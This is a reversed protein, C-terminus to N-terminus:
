ITILFSSQTWVIIIADALLLQRPLSLSTSLIRSEIVASLGPFILSASHSYTCLVVIVPEPCCDDLGVLPSFAYIHFFCLMCFNHLYACLFYIFIYVVLFDLNLLVDIAVFLSLAVVVIGFLSYNRM